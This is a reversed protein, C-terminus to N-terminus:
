VNEVSKALNLVRIAEDFEDIERQLRFIDEEYTMDGTMKRVITDFVGFNARDRRMKRKESVIERKEDELVGLVVSFDM